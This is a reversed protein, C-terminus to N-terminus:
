DDEALDQVREAGAENLIAGARRFHADDDCAVTVAFRDVATEPVYVRDRIAPLRASIYFGLVTFLIGFLILLEYTIILFPPITI